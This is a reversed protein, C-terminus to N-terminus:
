CIFFDNKLYPPYRSISHSLNKSVTSLLHDGIKPDPSPSVHGDSYLILVNYAKLNKVHKIERERKKRNSGSQLM